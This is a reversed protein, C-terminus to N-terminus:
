KLIEYLAEWKKEEEEWKLSEATGPTSKIKKYAAIDALYSAAKKYQSKDAATINNKQGAFISAANEYPEKAATLAKGYENALQKKIDGNAEKEMRSYISVAKNIFYDGVYLYSSTYQPNAVNSKKFAAVMKQELLNDAATIENKEARPSLEGFLVEGLVTNAKFDDPTNKLLDELVKIKEAATTALGVGFDVKDFGFFDSKPYLSKGIAKYKEFLDYNAKQFHYSVLYRYVSEFGEGALKADAMRGYYIVADDKLNSNEATIGALVLVNTDIPVQLIKKAILLDSYEVAKKLKGYAASWEKSSYNNYGATYFFSYLNVPANQYVADGVLSMLPEAQKYKLFAADGDEALKAAVGANSKVQDMAMAGYIAAKLIYAEPNTYFGANKGGEDLAAKADNYKNLALTNKIASYNQGSVPLVCIAFFVILINRM